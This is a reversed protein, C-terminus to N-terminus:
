PRAERSERSRALVRRVSSEALPRGTRCAFERAVKRHGLGGAALEVILAEQRADLKPLMRVQSEGTPRRRRRPRRVGPRAALAPSPMLVGEGALGERIRDLGEREIQWARDKSVGVAEGAARLTHCPVGGLGHRLRLVTAERPPLRGLEALAREVLEPYGLAGALDPGDPGHRHDALSALNRGSYRLDDPEQPITAPAALAARLPGDRAPDLGTAATVEADIPDRGLRERLHDSAARWRRVSEGVGIPVRISRGRDSVARSIAQRIWYGAYTSFRIGRGPDFREVARALGFVGDQCLDDYDLGRNLFGRAITGVLGMNRAIMLNRAEIDGEAVRRALSREEEATLLAHRAGPHHHDTTALRMTM